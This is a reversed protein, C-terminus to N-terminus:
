RMELVTVARTLRSHVYVEHDEKVDFAEPSDLEITKPHVIVCYRGRPVVDGAQSVFEQLLDKTKLGRSSSCRGYPIDTVMADAHRIPLRLSDSNIVGLAELGYHRLNDMAGRCMKMSVDIGVTKAGILSAEILISGTGCFPDLLVEGERVRSLNVLGRAFKPYLVSPHFFPRTRPRRSRWGKKSMYDTVGILLHNDSIIGIVIKKPDKLSVRADPIRRKVASGIIVEVKESLPKHSLNFVSASFIVSSEMFDEFAISNISREMDEMKCHTLLLGGTNIYAGRKLITDPSFKGDVVFVRDHIKEFRAKRDYIEVLARLEAQLLTSKEGSLLFFKKRSEPIPTEM